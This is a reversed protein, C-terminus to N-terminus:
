RFEFMMARRELRVGDGTGPWDIIPEYLCSVTVAVTLGEYPQGTTEIEVDLDTARSAAEALDREVADRVIAEWGTRTDVTFRRTAGSEAATRAANSLLVCLRTAQGLDVCAAVILLLLPLILACETAATGVRAPCAVGTLSDGTRPDLPRPRTARM